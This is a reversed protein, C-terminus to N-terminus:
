SVRCHCIARLAVHKVIAAIASMALSHWRGFQDFKENRRSGPRLWGPL